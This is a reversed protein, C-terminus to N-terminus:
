VSDDWSGCRSKFDAEALAKQGAYFYHGDFRDHGAPDTARCTVWPTVHDHENFEVLLVYGLPTRCARLVTFDGM